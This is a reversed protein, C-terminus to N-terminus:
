EKARWYDKCGRKCKVCPMEAHKRKNFVSACINYYLTDDTECFLQFSMFLTQDKICEKIFYQKNFYDYEVEM